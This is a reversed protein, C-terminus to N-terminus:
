KLINIQEKREEDFLEYLYRVYSPRDPFLNPGM